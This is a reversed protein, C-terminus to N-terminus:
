SLDESIQDFNVEAQQSYSERIVGSQEVSVFLTKLLGTKRSRYIVSVHQDRFENSLVSKLEELSACFRDNGFNKIQIPEPM